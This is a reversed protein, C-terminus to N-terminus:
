RAAGSLEGQECVSNERPDIGNQMSAAKDKVVIAFVYRKGEHDPTEKINMKSKTEHLKDSLRRRNFLRLLNWDNWGNLRQAGNWVNRISSM